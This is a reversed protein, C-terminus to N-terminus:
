LEFALEVIANHARYSINLDDEDGLNPLEFYRYGVAVSLGNDGGVRIGAGAQWAFEEDSQLTLVSTTNVPSGSLEDNFILFPAAASLDADTDLDNAYEAFGAGGGFYPRVNYNGPLTYWLNVMASRVTTTLIDEDLNLTQAFPEMAGPAQAVDIDVQVESHREAYEAELIFDGLEFGAAAGGVFSRMETLDVRTRATPADSPDTTPVFGEAAFYNDPIIFAGGFVSVRPSPWGAHAAAPALLVGALAVAFLPKQM